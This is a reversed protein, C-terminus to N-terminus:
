NYRWFGDMAAMTGKMDSKVYPFLENLASVREEVTNSLIMKRLKFCHNKQILEM